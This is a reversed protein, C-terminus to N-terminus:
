HASHACECTHIHAHAHAHPAVAFTAVSKGFLTIYGCVYKALHARERKRDRGRERLKELVCM